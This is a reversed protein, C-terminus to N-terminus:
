GNIMGIKKIMQEVDNMVFTTILYTCNPSDLFLKLNRICNEAYAKITDEESLSFYGM